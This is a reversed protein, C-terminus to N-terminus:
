THVTHQGVRNVLRQKCPGKARREGVEIGYLLALSGAWACSPVGEASESVLASSTQCPYRIHNQMAIMPGPLGQEFDAFVADIGAAQIVRDTELRIVDTRVQPLLLGDMAQDVVAAGADPTAQSQPLLAAADSVPQSDPLWL